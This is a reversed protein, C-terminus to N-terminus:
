TNQEPTPTTSPAPEQGDPKRPEVFVCGAVELGVTHERGDIRLRLPGRFPHREIVQIVSGVRVGLRTLYQLVEPDSDRVRIVRVTEAAPTDSLSTGRRPDMAGSPEPIPDGHPDFSPYGLLRDIAAEFKESIHHELREAEADVEDWSYGLIDHLFTEILRHHRIIELAVRRGSATLSVGHYPEYSALDKRALQRVAKTVAAASVGIVDALRNTCVARGKEELKFIAKIYDETARGLRPSTLVSM